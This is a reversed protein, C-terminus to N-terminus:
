ENQNSSVKHFLLKFFCVVGTILFSLFSLAFFVAKVQTLLSTFAILSNFKSPLNSLLYLILIDEAFDIIVFLLPFILIVKFFKRFDFKSLLYSISIFLTFGVLLINIFDFLQFKFYLAQGADGIKDVYDYFYESSFGFKEEPMEIHQSLEKLNSYTGFIFLYIGFCLFIIWSFLVYVGNIKIGFM